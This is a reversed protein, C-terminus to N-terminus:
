FNMAQIGYFGQKGNGFGFIFPSLMTLECVDFQVYVKIKVTRKADPNGRYIAKLKWSGHPRPDYMNGVTSNM